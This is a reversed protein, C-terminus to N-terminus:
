TKIMKLINEIVYDQEVETMQPYLPLTMTEAAAAETEPLSLGPYILRYPKELHSAMIGIRTAIGIDRLKQMLQKRKLKNRKGLRIVYSQWTHIYGKPVFPPIINQNELFAKTYREALLARKALIAPLKKMQEVGVAAQIDSMRYNYGILPYKEFVIKELRHRVADSISMGHHRLMRLSDAWSKKNTLVMGGEGTTVIKRPHFSFCTLDSLSGIKRGKYVSGLGCAADEVVLLRHEKAIAYISDLDAPLGVQDVPIIARTNRNIAEDINAPNLNYTRPDIDVFVPKAGIHVVANATAIFSLSPVIVEDGPGVGLMYLSLSLATTCSTTAVAYKSGAYKAVLKEFEAVKPGQTVWGSRLVEAVANEEASDFYTRQLPINM